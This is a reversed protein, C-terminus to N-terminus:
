DSFEKLTHVPLIVDVTTYEGLLSSIELKGKYERIINNCTSLGLGSGKGKPKTTSLPKLAENIIDEKMGIGHDCFRVKVCPLNDMTTEDCTIELIKNDHTGPYKQNLAYLANNIINLFVLEIQLPRTVIKTLQNPINLKIKIGEKQLQSTIPAFAHSLLDKIDVQTMKENESGPRSISLLSSVINAIRKGEKIIITIIKRDEDGEPCKDLLMQACNIVGTLPNNIEHALCSALTVISELKQMNSLQEHLKKQEDEMQRRQTIDMWCGIIELPKDTEDRVVNLEDYITRYNGNRHLFRYELVMHDVEPIRSIEDLVHPLDEPHIRDFWFKLNQMFQEPEYGLQLRTNDSIFTIRYDSCNASYIMVPSVWLLFEFRKKIEQLNRELLRSETINRAIGAFGVVNGKEGKLPINKHECLIGSDKFYLEYRPSEGELTRTYADTAFKQDEEGFLSVFPKGSLVGPKYDTLTEFMKNALLINGKGNCIYAFDSIESFLSEYKRLAADTKKREIGLALSDAVSALAVLTTKTLPKRAFMAMVGILRDDIILPYGAFAVMGMQKAWEQDHVRPDGVVSNTLHPKREQAILGVKFVGVPIRSHKGDIHTYIGSSAQLELTNEQENLTWIRALAANLNRVMAETCGHLAEGLTENKTLSIGVDRAFGTLRIQEVLIADSRRQGTIERAICVIGIVTGAIDKLPFNKYECFVGTDKFYLVCESIEGKLSRTYVDLAKKLNIEDFIPAFPKGSFDDQKRGTLKEFTQNLFLINGKTDCIYAIDPIQSFFAEHKKLEAVTKKQDNITENQSPSHTTNSHEIASEKNRNELVTDDKQSM